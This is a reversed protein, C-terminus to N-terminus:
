LVLSGLLVQQVPKWGTLGISFFESVKGTSEKFFLSDLLLFRYEIGLGSSPSDVSVIYHTGQLLGFGLWGVKNFSLGRLENILWCHLGGSSLFVLQFNPWVSMWM